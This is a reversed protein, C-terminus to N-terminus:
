SKFKSEAKAACAPCRTQNHVTIKYVADCDRCNDLMGKRGKMIEPLGNKGSMEPPAFKGTVIEPCDNAKPMKQCDNAKPMEHPTNAKPMEPCDNAKPLISYLCDTSIDGRRYANLLPEFAKATNKELVIEDDHLEVLGGLKVKGGVKMAPIDTNLKVKAIPIEKGENRSLASYAENLTLGSKILATVKKLENGKKNHGSRILLMASLVRTMLGLVDFAIAFLLWKISNAQSPTIGFLGAIVTDEKRWVSTITESTMNAKRELLAALHNSAGLYRQHNEAYDANTVTGRLLNIQSDIGKRQALYDSQILKWEPCSNAARTTYPQGSSNRKPTCDDNMYRSMDSPMNPRTLGSLQKQLALLQQQNAKAAAGAKRESEIAQNPDSYIALSSELSRAIEIQKNIAEMDSSHQLREQAAEESVNSADFVSTILLMLVTSIALLGAITAVGYDQNSLAQVTQPIAVAKMYMFAMFGLCFIISFLLSGDDRASWAWALTLSLSLFEPLFSTYNLKRSLNFYEAKENSELKGSFVTKRYRYFLAAIVAIVTVGLLLYITEKDM